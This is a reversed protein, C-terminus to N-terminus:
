ETVLVHHPRGIFGGDILSKIRQRNPNFRLEHDIMHLIGVREAHELMETAESVNMAMPKECLVHRGAAIAALAMRHHWVPPSTISVLDLDSCVLDHWRDFAHPIGFRAAVQAARGRTASAVAVVPRTSRRSPQSKCRAASALAM